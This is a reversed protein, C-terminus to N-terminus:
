GGCNPTSTVDTRRVSYLGPVPLTTMVGRVPFALSSNLAFSFANSDFCFDSFSFHYYTFVKTKQESYLIYFMFNLLVTIM